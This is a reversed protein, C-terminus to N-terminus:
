IIALSKSFCRTEERPIHLRLSWYNVAREDLNSSLRVVTEIDQISYRNHVWKVHEERGYMLVREIIAFKDMELDLSSINADWIIEALVSMDTKTLRSHLTKKQTM